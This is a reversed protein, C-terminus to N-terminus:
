RTAREGAPVSGTSVRALKSLISHTAQYVRQARDDKSLLGDFFTAYTAFIVDVVDNRMRDARVNDAGGRAIWDLSWVFTAVSHRFLFTNQLEDVSRVRPPPNPHTSMAMFTLEVIFKMAKEILTDPFPQDM